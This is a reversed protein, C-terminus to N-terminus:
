MGLVMIGVRLHLQRHRNRPYHYFSRNGIYRARRNNAPQKRGRNGIFVVIDLHTGHHSPTNGSIGIVTFM